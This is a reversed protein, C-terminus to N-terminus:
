TLKAASQKAAAVAQKATSLYDAATTSTPSTGFIVAGATAMCVLGISANDADAMPTTLLANEVICESAFADAANVATAYDTITFSGQFRQAQIAHLAGALFGNRIAATAM